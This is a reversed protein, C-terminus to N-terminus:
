KIPGFGLLIKYKGGYFCPSEIRIIRSNENILSNNKEKISKECACLIQSSPSDMLSRSFSYQTLSLSSNGLAILILAYILSLSAERGPVFRSSDSDSSHFHLEWFFSPSAWRLSPREVSWLPLVRRIWRTISLNPESLLESLWEMLM